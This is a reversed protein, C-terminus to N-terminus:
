RLGLSWVEVQGLAQQLDHQLAITEDNTNPSSVAKLKATLQAVSAADQDRLTRLREVEAQLAAVEQQYNRQLQELDQQLQQQKEREKMQQEHQQLQQRLSAVEQAHQNTAATSATRLQELEKDAASRQAQSAVREQELEAQLKQM